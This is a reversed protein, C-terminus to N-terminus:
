IFDVDYNAGLDSLITMIENSLGICPKDNLATFVISFYCTGENDKLIEKLNKFNDKFSLIFAKFIEDTYIEEFEDTKFIIKSSKSPGKSDKYNILKYPKLKILDKINELNCDKKFSLKISFYFKNKEM